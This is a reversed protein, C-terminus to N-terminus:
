REFVDAPFWIVVGIKKNVGRMEDLVIQPDTVFTVKGNKGHVEMSTTNESLMQTFIEKDDCKAILNEIRM